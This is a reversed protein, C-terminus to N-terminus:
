NIILCIKCDIMVQLTYEVYSFVIINRQYYNLKKQYNM